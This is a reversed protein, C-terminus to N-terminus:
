GLNAKVYGYYYVLTAGGVSILLSVIFALAYQWNNPLVLTTLFILSFLFGIGTIMGGSTMLLKEKVRKM